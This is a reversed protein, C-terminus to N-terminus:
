QSLQSHPQNKTKTPYKMMRPGGKTWAYLRCIRIWIVIHRRSMVIFTEPPINSKLCDRMQPLLQLSLPQISLKSCSWSCRKIFKSHILSYTHGRRENFLNRMSIMKKFSLDARLINVEYLNVLVFSISERQKNKSLLIFYILSDTYSHSCGNLSDHFLVLTDDKYTTYKM